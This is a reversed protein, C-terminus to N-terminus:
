IKEANKGRQQFKVFIMSINSSCLVKHIMKSDMYDSLSNTYPIIKM